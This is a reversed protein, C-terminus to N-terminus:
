SFRFVLPLVFSVLAAWGVYVPLYGVVAQRVSGAAGKGRILGIYARCTWALHTMVVLNAGLVVVRNPTLGYSTLRFVIASLAILDIVLTVVILAVNVYDTWGVETQEGREAISFVTMGLVVLLLGNFTILFERDLFPNQGGLFAVVLYTATMVLFLPAFVRVLVSAIGTRRKFVVDYLYTGAVPVAAAGVVGINRFYWDASNKSVLEFLAVTIGSFVMGGLGVLSGLILLEGNYRIYRIRQEPERWSAGTFVFGLFAWSLVPLHVLAMVVSDTYDGSGPLLATYTTVIAALALGAILKGRDRNELWFYAALALLVLSPALRPYYWEEGLWVVPIRVVAGVCLGIGITYWLRRRDAGRAPESYELRARWVRLVISDPAALSLEHFSDRFSEPDQRFLAELEKPDDLSGLIRQATPRMREIERTRTRACYYLVRCWLTLVRRVRERDPLRGRRVGSRGGIEAM